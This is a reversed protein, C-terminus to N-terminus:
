GAPHMEQRVLEFQVELEKMHALAPGLDGEKGATEIQSAVERLAEACVNASAGKISHAHRGM